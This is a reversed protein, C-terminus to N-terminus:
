QVATLLTPDSVVADILAVLEDSDTEVHTSSGRQSESVSDVIQLDSLTQGIETGDSENRHNTPLQVEDSSQQQPEDDRADFVALLQPLEGNDQQDEEVAAITFDVPVSWLTANDSGDIARVWARYNGAPLASGPTFSATVLNTQLIAVTVGVQNVHLEYRVAGEVPTWTITPQASPAAGSPGLITPRGGIYAETAPTWLGIEGGAGVPRM